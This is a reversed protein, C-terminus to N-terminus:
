ETHSSWSVAEKERLSRESVLLFQSASIHSPGDSAATQFSVAGGPM